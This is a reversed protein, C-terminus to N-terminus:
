NQGGHVVDLARHSILQKFVIRNQCMEGTAVRILWDKAGTDGKAAAAANHM